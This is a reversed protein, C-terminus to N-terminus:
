EVGAAKCMAEVYEEVAKRDEDTETDKMCDAQFEDRSLRGSRLDDLDEFGENEKAWAAAAKTMKVGRHVVLDAM